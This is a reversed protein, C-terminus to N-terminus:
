CHARHARLTVPRRLDAAECGPSSPYVALSRAVCPLTSHCTGDHKSFQAAGVVEHDLLDLQTCGADAFHQHPVGADADVEDVGIEPAAQVGDLQGGDDAVLRGADDFRDARLHLAELDTVADAVARGARGIDLRPDHFRLRNHVQGVGDGVVHHRRTERAAHGGFVQQEAQM